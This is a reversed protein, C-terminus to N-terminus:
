ILFNEIPWSLARESKKFVMAAAQNVPPITAGNKLRADKGSLNINKMGPKTKEYM